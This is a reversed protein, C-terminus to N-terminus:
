TLYFIRPGTGAEPLLAHNSRSALLRSVESEPDDLDGFAMCRTPCVSVCAPDVGKSTRHHCFTCTDAYGEPHVFRADYPCSALCAKCGICKEHDVLVVDGPDQVHSAGTPCCGVCPPQDCHNCRQSRIELRSSPYSGRVEEVIWDRCHGLPVDNETACAVVCDACGVCLRTDLVMCFRAM